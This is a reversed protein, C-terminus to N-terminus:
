AEVFIKSFQFNTIFAQKSMNKLCYKAVLKVKLPLAPIFICSLKKRICNFSINLIIDIKWKASM